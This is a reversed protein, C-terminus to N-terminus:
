RWWDSLIIWLTFGMMVAGFLLVLIAQRPNERAWKETWERPPHM